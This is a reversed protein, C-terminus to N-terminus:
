WFAEVRVDLPCWHPRLQSQVLSSLCPVALSLHKLPRSSRMARWLATISGGLLFAIGKGMM